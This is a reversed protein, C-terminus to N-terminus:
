PADNKKMAEHARQCHGAGFFFDLVAVRVRYGKRYCYACINEDKGIGVFLMSGLAEDLNLLVNFLRQNM